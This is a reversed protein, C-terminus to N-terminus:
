EEDLEIGLPVEATTRVSAISMEPLQVTVPTSGAGLSTTLTPIPRKLTSMTARVEIKATARHHEVVMRWRENYHAAVDAAFQGLRADGITEAYQQLDIKGALRTKRKPSAMRAIASEIRRVHEQQTKAYSRGAERARLEEPTLWTDGVKVFGRARRYEDETLWRGEYRIHGLRRRAEPQDPDLAVAALLHTRELDKLGKEACFAALAAQAAADDAKTAALRERYLDLRTPGKTITAVDDAALRVEGTGTDVVVSEGVRSARGELRGGNKLVIDDARAAGSSLAAAAALLTRVFHRRRNPM